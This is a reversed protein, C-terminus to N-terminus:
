RGHFDMEVTLSLLRFDLNGDIRLAFGQGVGPVPLQSVRIEGSYPYTRSDRAPDYQEWEQAHTAKCLFAPDSEMVRLRVRGEQRVTNYTRVDELPMTQLESSFSAGFRYSKGAAFDPIIFSGDSSVEIERAAVPVDASYVYGRLGALHPVSVLPADPKVTVAGDLFLPQETIREISVVGSRPNQVVLWLEDDTNRLGPLAALHCVKRGQMSMRQWATVQQEANSTLVALTGDNMLVWLRTTRGRQVAYSHVGSSFLHEALLSMDTSTYGDATLKYSIERM